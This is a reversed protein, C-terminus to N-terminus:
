VTNRGEATAEFSHQMSRLLNRTVRTLPIAQVILQATVTGLVAGVIGLKKVFLISLGLNLIAMLTACIAQVRFQATGNLLFGIPQLYAYVLCQVGFVALLLTSATMQPGVWAALIRNGFVALVLVAILTFAAGIISVRYFSNRVWQADKRAVADAYAPWMSGSLMILVSNVVSFLRAPVAYDAVAKPGMIQAIVINDTQMGISIALQLIFYTGGVHLMLLATERKVASISPMLDRQAGGFLMAGNLLLALLPPVSLSLVLLPLGARVHIAILLGILAATTGTMGWLNNSAANQMGTQTGRVTGLPLNLIFCSLLALSSLSAERIASQSHVNFLRSVDVFPYTVALIVTLILSVGCLMWFASSIAQKAAVRNERGLTDAVLNILGNSMGFDAFNLMLVFSSITLWMGYREAGLYRYTLRVTLLSTGLSILKSAIATIGAWAARRYREESRSTSSNNRKFLFCLLDRKRFLTEVGPWEILRM